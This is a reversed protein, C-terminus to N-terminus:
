VNYYLVVNDFYLTPVATGTCTSYFYFSTSDYTAVGRLDRLNWSQYGGVNDMSWIAVNGATFSLYCSTGSPISTWVDASFSFTQGVEILPVIQLISTPATYYSDLGGFTVVGQGNSGDFSSRTGTSSWTWPSAGNSFDGNVIVQKREAVIAKEGTTAGFVSLVVNDFTITTDYNGYCTAQLNAYTPIKTFTGSVDVSLHVSPAATNTDYRFSGSYLAGADTSLYVSCMDNYKIGTRPTSGALNVVVDAHAYFGNMSSSPASSFTQRLVGSVMQQPPRTNVLSFAM